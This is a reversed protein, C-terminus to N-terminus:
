VGGSSSFTDLIICRMLFIRNLAFHSLVGSYVDRHLREVRVNHVSKGILMSGRGPGREEVMFRAVEINELGHDSRTRSPIGYRRAGGKFLDLVTSALNNNACHLYIILRSYGDMCAHVFLRWHILKHHGDIHWLAKAGPVNYKRGSELSTCHRSPRNEENNRPGELAACALRQEEICRAHSEPWYQSHRIESISRCSSESIETFGDTELGFEERRRRLTRESALLKAISAWRFHKRRLFELQDKMIEFRPRGKDGSCSVPCQYAFSCASETTLGDLRTSINTRIADLITMLGIVSNNAASNAPLSQYLVDFTTCVETMRDVANELDDPDGM